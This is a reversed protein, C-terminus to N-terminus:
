IKYGKFTKTILKASKDKISVNTVQIPWKINVYKDFPNISREKKVNFFESHCYIIECQDTLTQFGHAYGKPIILIDNKNSDLLFKKNKLFEKSDKRIDILVDFIKGKIVKVIKVESYPM